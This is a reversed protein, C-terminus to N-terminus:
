MSSSSRTASVWAKMVETQIDRPFAFRKDRNLTLFIDRPDIVPAEDDDLLDEFNVM